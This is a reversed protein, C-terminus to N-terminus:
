ITFCRPLSSMNYPKETKYSRDVGHVNTFCDAFYPKLLLINRGAEAQLNISSPFEGLKNIPVAGLLRHM